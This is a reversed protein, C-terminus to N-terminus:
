RKLLSGKRRGNRLPEAQPDLIEEELRDVNGPALRREIDKYIEASLAHVTGYENHTYFEPAYEPDDMDQNYDLNRAKRVTIAEALTTAGFQERL